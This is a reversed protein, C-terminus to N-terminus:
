GILQRRWCGRDDAIGLEGPTRLTVEVEVLDPRAVTGRRQDEVMGLVVCHGIGDAAARTMRDLGMDVVHGDFRGHLRTEVAVADVRARGQGARRTM